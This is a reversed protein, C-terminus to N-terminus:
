SQSWARNRTCFVCVNFDCKICNFRGLNNEKSAYNQAKQEYFNACLDCRFSVNLNLPWLILSGGCKGCKVSKHTPLLNLFKAHQQACQDRHKGNNWESRSILEMCLYCKIGDSRHRKRRNAAFCVFVPALVAFFVIISGFVAILYLDSNDVKGVDQLKTNTQNNAMSIIVTHIKHAFALFM